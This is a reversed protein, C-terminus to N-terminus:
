FLYRAMWCHFRSGSRFGFRSARASGGQGDDSEKLHVLNVGPLALTLMLWLLGLGTDFGVNLLVFAGASAHGVM